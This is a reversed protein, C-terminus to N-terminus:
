KPLDVYQDDKNNQIDLYKFVIRGLTKYDKDSKSKYARKSLRVLTKTNPRSFIREGGKLEMQVDGKPGLVLMKPKEEEEDEDYDEVDDEQWMDGLDIDDSPEIGSDGSVELVYKVNDTDAELLEESMPEADKFIKVIEGDEDIYIIDLPIYTDKMWFAAQVPEEYIFLMGEDDPLSTVGQLGKERKEETDAICVKYTKDGVTIECKHEVSGGESYIEM